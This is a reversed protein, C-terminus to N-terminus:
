CASPRITDERGRGEPWHTLRTTLWFRVFSEIQEVFHWFDMSKTLYSSAHLTYARQIDQENGSTTLMVVPILHLRPDAKMAQLVEFGTMGPMNIDLLVVDPLRVGSHRMKALADAGSEATMVGVQDSYEAFVEQAILRDPASDDILLICLRRTEQAPDPSQPPSVLAPM